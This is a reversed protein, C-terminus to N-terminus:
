MQETIWASGTLYISEFKLSDKLKIYEFLFATLGGITTTIEPRMASGDETQTKQVREMYSGKEDLYWIFLGDNEMIIPDILRIAVTVKGKSSIHKLMEHLNVIRALVRPKRPEVEELYCAINEEDEITAEQDTSILNIAFDLNIVDDDSLYDEARRVDIGLSECKKLIEAVSLNVSEAYEKVNM